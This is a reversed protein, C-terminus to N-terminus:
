KKRGRIAMYKPFTPLSHDASSSYHASTWTLPQQAVAWAPHLKFDSACCCPRLLLARLAGRLLSQVEWKPLSGSRDPLKPVALPHNNDPAQLPSHIDTVRVFVRDSITVFLNIMQASKRKVQFESSLMQTVRPGIVFLMILICFCSSAKPHREHCGVSPIFDSFCLALAAVEPSHFKSETAHGRTVSTELFSSRNLTQKGSYEYFASM